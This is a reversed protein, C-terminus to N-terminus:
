FEVTMRANKVEDDESASVLADFPASYLMCLREIAGETLGGLDDFLMRDTRERSINRHNMRFAYYFLEPVKTMPHKSVDSIDFGRAEAFKVSARSFELVYKEGTENDTLILPKIKENVEKKSM